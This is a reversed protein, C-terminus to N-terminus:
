PYGFTTRQQAFGSRRSMEGYSARVEYALPAPHLLV